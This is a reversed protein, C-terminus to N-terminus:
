VVSQRKRHNKVNQRVKEKRVKEGCDSCYKYRMSKPKFENGCNDCWAIRGGIFNIYIERIKSFDDVLFAPTGDQKYFLLEIYDPQWNRKNWYKGNAEYRTMGLNKFDNIINNKNFQAFSIKNSVRAETIAQRLNEMPLSIRKGDALKDKALCLMSLLILQYEFNKVQRIKDVEEQFIVINGKDFIPPSHLAIRTADKVKKINTIENFNPDAIKYRRIIEKEIRQKGWGLQHRLYKGLLFSEGWTKIGESSQYLEKAKELENLIKQKKM